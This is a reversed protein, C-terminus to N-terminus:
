QELKPPKVRSFPNDINAPLGSSGALDSVIKRIEREVKGNITNLINANFWYEIFKKPFYNSYPPLSAKALYNAYMATSANLDDESKNTASNNHVIWSYYPVPTYYCGWRLGSYQILFSVDWIGLEEPFRGGFDKFAKNSYFSSASLTCFPSDALLYDDRYEQPSYYRTEVWNSVNNIDLWEGSPLEIYHAASIIGVDPNAVAAADVFELFGPLMYDDSAGMHFFDGTVMGCGINRSDINGTNKEKRVLKIFPYESAYHQIIEVSNDTSADDVIIYEDPPRSQTVVAEIATPLYQSHNYNALVASLIPRRSM